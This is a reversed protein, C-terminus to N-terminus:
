LIQLVLRLRPGHLECVIWDPPRAQLAPFQQAILPRFRFPRSASRHLDEFRKVREVAADIALRFAHLEDETIANQTPTMRVPSDIVWDQELPELQLEVRGDGFERNGLRVMRNLEIGRQKLGHTIHITPRNPSATFLQLFSSEM